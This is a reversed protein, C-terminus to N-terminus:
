TSKRIKEHGHTRPFGLGSVRAHSCRCLRARACECVCVCAYRGLRRPGSAETRRAGHAHAVAHTIARARSARRFPREMDPAKSRLRLLAARPPPFPPPQAIPLSSSTHTHTHAHTHAHTRTRTRTHVPARERACARPSPFVLIRRTGIGRAVVALCAGRGARGPYSM